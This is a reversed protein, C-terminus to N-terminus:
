RRKPFLNKLFEFFRLVYFLNKKNIELLKELFFNELKNMKSRSKSQENYRIELKKGAGKIM